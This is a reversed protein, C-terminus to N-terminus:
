KMLDTDFNDKLIKGLRCLPLGVVNFYDGDIADVLLSGFGQIGYAGAKDLPEKTSIYAKIEDDTLNRIHVNTKEYASIRKNEASDIVMIGTYVTHERGSLSKLMYFADHEDKPKGLIKDDFAVVTDAAIIVADFDIKRAVNAAKFASLRLVTEGPTVANSMDEPSNDPIIRMNPLFPKLLEIRRPSQSALVFTKEKM